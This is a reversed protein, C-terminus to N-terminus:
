LMEWDFYNIEFYKTEARGYMKKQAKVNGKFFNYVMNRFIIKNFINKPIQLSNM